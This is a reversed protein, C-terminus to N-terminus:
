LSPKNLMVEKKIKKGDRIIHFVVKDGAYKKVAKRLDKPEMIEIDKVKKVIDGKFLDAKFAPSGNLVARIALGKNSGIKKREEPTLCTLHAGLIAPKFKIWYSAVYNYRRQSYPMYAIKTGHTTTRSTGSYSGSSSYPINNILGGVNGSTSIGGSHYTTSTKTDPFFMPYNGSVTNTYQSYFLIISAHVKKGQAMLQKRNVNGANFSSHGLFAYGDELMRQHDTKMDSGRYIKPPKSSTIFRSDKTVDVSRIKDFYFKSFPNRACGSLIFVSFCIIFLINKMKKRGGIKKIIDNM